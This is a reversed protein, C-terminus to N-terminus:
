VGWAPALVRFSISIPPSFTHKQLNNALSGAARCDMMKVPILKASM